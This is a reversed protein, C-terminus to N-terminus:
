INFQKFVDEIIDKMDFYKYQALRGGFLVNKENDALEKYKKYLESNKKYKYYKYLIKNIIMYLEEPTHVIEYLGKVDLKQLKIDKLYYYDKDLNNSKNNNEIIENSYKKNSETSNNNNKNSSTSVKRARGRKRNLRIKDKKSNNEISSNSDQSSDSQEEYNMKNEKNEGYKDRILNINASKNNRDLNTNMNNVHTKKVLSTNKGMHINNINNNFARSM